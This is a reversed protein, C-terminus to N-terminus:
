MCTYPSQCRSVYMRIHFELLKHTKNLALSEGQMLDSLKSKKYKQQLLVHVRVFLLVKQDTYAIISTVLFSLDNLKLKVKHILYIMIFPIHSDGQQETHIQTHM